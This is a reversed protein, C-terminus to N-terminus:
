SEKFRIQTFQSIQVKGKRKDRDASVRLETSRTIVYIKESVKETRM